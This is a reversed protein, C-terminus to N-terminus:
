SCKNHMNMVTLSYYYQATKSPIVYLLVTFRQMCNLKNINIVKASLQVFQCCPNSTSSFTLYNKYTNIHIYIAHIYGSVHSM